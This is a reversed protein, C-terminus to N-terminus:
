KQLICLKNRHVMINTSNTLAIHLYEAGATDYKKKDCTSFHPALSKNEIDQQDSKRLLDQDGLEDAPLVHRALYQDEQKDAV